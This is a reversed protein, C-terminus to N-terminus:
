RGTPMEFEPIDKDRIDSLFKVRGRLSNGINGARGTKRSTRRIVDSGGLLCEICDFIEPRRGILDNLLGYRPSMDAEKHDRPRKTLM